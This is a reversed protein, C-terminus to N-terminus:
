TADDADLATLYARGDDCDQNIQAILADLGDYKEEPRLFKEFTITLTQGYIDRNFDLLYSEVTVGKYAFTPSVGVNTMAMFREDGLYAWGAYVGNMPIIQEAWVDINATPFGIKRGRKAGHVVEGCVTYGRGLLHRAQEVAGERLLDRIATSSINDGLADSTVLDVVHVDFGRERGAEILFPVDGERKHGLAFDAGVWLKKLRLYRALQDVFDAAPIQRMIDDFTQTIVVDVGLALLQRAREDPTTLYYRQNIDKLVVDPHPFFTMVVALHDEAHAAAVLQRILHQHGRHVGDFVGITLVSSRLLHINSLGYIHNM